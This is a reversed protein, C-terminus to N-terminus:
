GDAAVLGAYNKPTYADDVFIPYFTGELGLKAADERSIPRFAKWGHFAYKRQEAKSVRYVFRYLEPELKPEPLPRPGDLSALRRIQELWYGTRCRPSSLSVEVSLCAPVYKNVCDYDAVIVRDLDLFAAVTLLPQYATGGVFGCDNDPCHTNHFDLVVQYGRGQKVIEAARREERNGAPDGPFVRNLDAEVFRQNLRRAAPNGLVASVNSLPKAILAAVLDLGLPENGHLGGIVLVNM